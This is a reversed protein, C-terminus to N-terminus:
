QVVPHGCNIVIYEISLFEKYLLNWSSDGGTFSKRLSNLYYLINYIGSELIIMLLIIEQSRRAFLTIQIWEQGRIIPVIGLTEAEEFNIAPMDWFLTNLGNGVLEKM